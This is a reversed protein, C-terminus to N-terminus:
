SPAKIRDILQALERVTHIDTLENIPITIDFEDEIEMILNLTKVSDLNSQEVLGEDPNIVNDSGGHQRLYACLQQLTKENDHRM